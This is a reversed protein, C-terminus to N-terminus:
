GARAQKQKDRERERERERERDRMTTPKTRTSVSRSRNKIWLVGGEETFTGGGGGHLNEVKRQSLKGQKLKKKGMQKNTNELDLDRVLCTFESFKSRHNCPHPYMHFPNTRRLIENDDM